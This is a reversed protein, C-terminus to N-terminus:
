KKGQINEVGVRRMPSEGQRHGTGQVVTPPVSMDRFAGAIARRGLLAAQKENIGAAKLGANGFYNDAAKQQAPPLKPAVNEGHRINDKLDTMQYDEMVIKATEDVAKVRVNKGIQACSGVTAWTDVMAGEDVYAGINVYSPM